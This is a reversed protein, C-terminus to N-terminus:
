LFYIILKTAQKNMRVHMYFNKIEGLLVSKGGKSKEVDEELSTLPIDFNEQEQLNLLWNNYLFIMAYSVYIM